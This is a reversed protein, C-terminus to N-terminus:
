SEKEDTQHKIEPFPNSVLSVNQNNLANASETFGKIAKCNVSLTLDPIGIKLSLGFNKTTTM